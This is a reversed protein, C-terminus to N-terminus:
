DWVYVLRPKKAWLRGSSIVNGTQRDRLCQPLETYIAADERNATLFPYRSKWYYDGNRILFKM